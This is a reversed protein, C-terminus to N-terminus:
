RISEIMRQLRERAPELRAELERVREDAHMAELEEQMRKLNEDLELAEIDEELVGLKEELEYREIEAEKQAVRADLEMSELERELERVREDAAYEEVGREMEEIKAEYEAVKRDIQARKEDDANWREGELSAIAGRASAIEGRKSAEAGRVSAMKGRMSAEEGNTSAIEGRMSAVEGRASAMEGRVSAVQGRLSAMEGRKSAAEGRITAISWQAAVVERMGDYWAQAEADFAREQGDVSWAHQDGARVELRQVTGDDHAEWMVLGDSGIRAIEGTERDMEVDGETRMCLTSDGLRNVFVLNGDHTGVRRHVTTGEEHNSSMSVSGRFNGGSEVACASDDAFGPLAPATAPSPEVRVEVIPAVATATRVAVEPAVKVAIKPAVEVRVPAEPAEGLAVAVKVAVEPAIETAIVPAVEVKVAPAVKVRVKVPETEQPAAAAVSLTAISAVTVLAIAVPRRLPRRNDRLINMVRKEMQSRQIMPLAAIRATNPSQLLENLELLERAYSSPKAGLALVREDCAEERAVIARHAALWALPNPWHLVLALRAVLHRVPDRRALHVLEHLLVFRRRESSWRRAVAPVLVVRQLLGGAMPTGIQSSTRLRVTERMGLMARAHRLDTRWAVDLLEGARAVLRSARRFSLMLLTLAVMAGVAWTATVSAPASEILRGVLAAGYDRGRAVLSTGSEGARADAVGWSKSRDSVATAGHAAAGFSPEESAGAAGVSAATAPVPEGGPAEAAGVFPSSLGPIPLAPLVGSLIPLALLAVFTATWMAHRTHAPARRLLRDAVLALVLLISAKAWLALLWPFLANM